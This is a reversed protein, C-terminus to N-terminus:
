VQYREWGPFRISVFYDRIKGKNQHDSINLDIWISHHMVVGMEHLYIIVDLQGNYIAATIGNFISYGHSLLWKLSSLAGFQCAADAINYKINHHQKLLGNCEYWELTPIGDNSAAHSIFMGVLPHDWEFLDNQKVYELIHVDGRSSAYDIWHTEIKPILKKDKMWKIIILNGNQFADELIKHVSFEYHEYYMYELLTTNFVKAAMLPTIKADIMRMHIFYNLFEPTYRCIDMPKIKPVLKKGHAIIGDNWTFSRIRIVNDYDCNIVWDRAYYFAKWLAFISASDLKTYIVHTIVENPLIDFYSM